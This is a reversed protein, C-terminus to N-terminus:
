PLGDESPNSRNLWNSLAEVVKEDSLWDIRFGVDWREIRDLITSVLMEPHNSTADVEITCNEYDLLVEHYYNTAEAVLNEIIKKEPWSRARLRRELEFPHVRLLVILALYENIEDVIVEPYVTALVVCSKKLLGIVSKSIRYLGQSDLVYTYRGTPDARTLGLKRAIDSTEALFCGLASALMSGLTTKGTGPVGTIILIYSL